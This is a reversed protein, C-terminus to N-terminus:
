SRFAFKTVENCIQVIYAHQKKAMISDLAQLQTVYAHLRLLKILWAPIILYRGVVTKPM